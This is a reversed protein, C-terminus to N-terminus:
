CNLPGVYGTGLTITLLSIMAGGQGGGLFQSHSPPCTQGLDPSRERKTDERDNFGETNLCSFLIGSDEGEGGELSFCSHTYCHEPNESYPIKREWQHINTVGWYEPLFWCGQTGWCGLPAGIQNVFFSPLSSPLLSPFFLCSSFSYSIHVLCTTFYFSAVMSM